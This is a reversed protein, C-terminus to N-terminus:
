QKIHCCLRLAYNMRYKCETSCVQRLNNLFVSLCECIFRFLKNLFYLKNAYLVLILIHRRLCHCGFSHMHLPGRDTVATLHVDMDADKWFITSENVCQPQSSIVAMKCVVNEFANEQVSYIYTEITINSFKTGLPWILLIGANVWIIAQRRAPVLGIDSCIITLKSVCIHSAQGGHTLVLHLLCWTNWAFFIM